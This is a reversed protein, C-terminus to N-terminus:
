LPNRDARIIPAVNMQVMRPPRSASTRRELFTRGRRAMLLSNM